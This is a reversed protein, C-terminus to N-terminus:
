FLVRIEGTTLAPTWEQEGTTGWLWSHGTEVIPTENGLSSGFLARSRVPAALTLVLLLFLLATRESELPVQGSPEKWFLFRPM